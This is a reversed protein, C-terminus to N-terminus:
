EASGKKGVAEELKNRLQLASPHHPYDKIFKELAQRVLAVLKARGTTKEEELGYMGKFIGLLIIARKKRPHNETKAMRKVVRMVDTFEQPSDIYKGPTADNGDLRKGLVGWEDKKGCGMSKHIRLLERLRNKGNAKGMKKVIEKGRFKPPIYYRTGQSGTSSISSVFGLRPFSRDLRKLSIMSAIWRGDPSLSFFSGVQLGAPAAWVKGTKPYILEASWIEERNFRGMYRVAMVGKRPSLAIGSVLYDKKEWVTTQAGSEVNFRLVKGQGAQRSSMSNSVVYVNKSNGSWALGNCVHYARGLGVFIKIRGVAKRTGTSVNKVYVTATREYRPYSKSEADQLYAIHQGDPAVKFSALPMLSVLPVNEVIEGQRNIFLVRPVERWYAPVALMGTQSVWRPGQVYTGTTIPEKRVINWKTPPFAWERIAKESGDGPNQLMLQLHIKKAKNASKGPGIFKQRMYAIWKGDPSWSAMSLAEKEQREAVKRVKKGSLDCIVLSKVPTYDGKVGEMVPLIVKKSDPSWGPVCSLGVVVFVVLTMGIWTKMRDADM